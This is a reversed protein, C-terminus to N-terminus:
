KVNFSIGVPKCSQLLNQNKSENLIVTSWLLEDYITKSDLM